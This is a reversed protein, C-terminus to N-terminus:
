MWCTEVWPCNQETKEEGGPLAAWKHHAIIIPQTMQTIFTLWFTIFAGRLWQFILFKNKIHCKVESSQGLSGLLLLQSFHLILGGLDDCFSISMKPNCEVESSWGLLRLSSIWSFHQFLGGLQDYSSISMKPNCEVESSQSFLRLLSLRSFHSLLHGLDDFLSISM